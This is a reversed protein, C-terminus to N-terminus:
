ARKRVKWVQESPYSRAWSAPISFPTDGRTEAARPERYDVVDFGVEDFLRFWGSTPLTFEVGGPDVEVARWDLRHLGFWPRVLTDSAPSGDLPSCVLALPHTGLFALTGGPRLLRHAERVWMHPDCWISAGYESVAYDFSADPCPVAEADGHVWTVDVGHEGALRRATELQQDSTDIATVTAGRRAMWGSVYGTGCGLEIAAMGTMDAPLLRVESDPVGWEGWEPESLSWLRGGGAVWDHAIGDWYARNALMHEPANTETM